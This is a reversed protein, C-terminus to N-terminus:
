QQSRVLPECSIAKGEDNIIIGVYMGIKCKIKANPALDIQKDGVCISKDNVADLTGRTYFTRRELGEYDIEGSNFAPPRRISRIADPSDDAFCIFPVSTMFFGAVLIFLLLRITIVRYKYLSKM